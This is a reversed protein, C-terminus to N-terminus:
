CSGPTCAIKRATALLAVQHGRRAKVRLFFARLPGRTKVAAHAAEVLMARAHAQGQRSIHGTRAETDGSQRVRPDLGLYGVLHRPAGFRSIDGAVSILSLATIWGVGPITM